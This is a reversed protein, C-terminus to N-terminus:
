EMKPYFGNQAIREFFPWFNGGVVVVIFFTECDLLAAISTIRRGCCIRWWPVAYDRDNLGDKKTGGNPRLRM